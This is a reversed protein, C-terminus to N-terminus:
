GNQRPKSAAVDPSADPTRSWETRGSRLLEGSRRTRHQPAIRQRSGAENACDVPRPERGSGGLQRRGCSCRPSWRVRTGPRGHLKPALLARSAREIRGSVLVRYSRGSPAGRSWWRSRSSGRSSRSRSSRPACMCTTSSERSGRCRRSGWASRTRQARTGSAGGRPIARSVRRGTEISSPPWHGRRRQSPAAATRGDSRTM